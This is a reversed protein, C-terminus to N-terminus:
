KQTSLKNEAAFTEIISWYFIKKKQRTISTIHETLKGIMESSTLGEEGLNKIIGTRVSTLM